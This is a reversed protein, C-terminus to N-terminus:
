LATNAGSAMRVTSPIIAAQAKSFRSRPTALHRLPATPHSRLTVAGPVPGQHEAQLGELAKSGVGRHSVQM